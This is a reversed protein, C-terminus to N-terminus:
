QGSVTRRLRQAKMAAILYAFPGQLLGISHARLLDRPFEGIEGLRRGGSAFEDRMSKGSLRALEGLYGPHRLLVSLYFATLGRGYGQLQRRLSAYERRHFHHVFATPQYVVTGGALLLASLAATDEGGQTLTGTGLANDFGGILKLAERRFSMNGGSGFPPLPYLPSQQAATAPSFVARTFGRGRQVGSYNEFLVQSETVLEAPVIIGSVAGAGPVEVYGRAIEAAWWRDCREDDDIWAIVEGDSEAIARNRAWSLGPRPEVVYDIDIELAKQAERVVQCTRDDSPANDIVLIRMRRYEQVSLSELTKVLGVPRDRTCVAATILPGERMVRERSALFRPTRPPKLGKTPVQGDWTLGCESFREALENAVDRGIIRALGVADIGDAPLSEALMGIPEGFLRVLVLVRMGPRGAPVAPVGDAIDCEM